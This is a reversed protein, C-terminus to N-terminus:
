VFVMRFFPLRLIESASLRKTPDIVLAARIVKALADTTPSSELVRASFMSNIRSALPYRHVATVFSYSGNPFKHFYQARKGDDCENLAKRSPVGLLSVMETMIGFDNDSGFLRTGGCLEFVVCGFSWVDVKTSRAMGLLVEPSRYLTSQILGNHYPPKDALGFDGLKVHQSDATLLLNEPKLDGHIISHRDLVTLISLIDRAFTQIERFTFHRHISARYDHLDAGMKEMVLCSHTNCDTLQPLFQSSIEDGPGMKFHCFYQPTFCVSIIEASQIYQMVNGENLIAFSYQPDRNIKLAVDKGTAVDYAALIISISSSGLLPAPHNVLFRGGIWAHYPYTLIGGDEALVQPYSDLQAPLHMPGSAPRPLDMARRALPMVVGQWSPPTAPILPVPMPYLGQQKSPFTPYLCGDIGFYYEPFGSKVVLLNM